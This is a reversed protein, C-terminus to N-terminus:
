KFLGMGACQKQIFDAFHIQIQLAFQQLRNFIQADAAQAAFGFNRDIHLLCENGGRTVIVHRDWIKEFMTQAM